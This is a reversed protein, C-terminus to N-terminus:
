LDQAIDRMRAMVRSKAIYVANVTMCLVRAVSGPDEGNVATREFAEWTQGSFSAKAQALAFQLVFRRHEENWTRTLESSPNELQQLMELMEDSGTGRVERRCRRRHERICNVTIHRLWSRFSGTRERRFDRLKRLVVVIVDQVLDDADPGRVGQRALWSKIMPMYVADLRQWGSGLNQQLDDLLQDSTSHM